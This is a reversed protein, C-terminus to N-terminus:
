DISFIVRDFNRFYKVKSLLNKLVPGPNLLDITKYYEMKILEQKIQIIEKEVGRIKM